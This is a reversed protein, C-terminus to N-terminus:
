GIRWRHGCSICTIFLSMPEDCSRMQQEYYVCKRKHCKKCRFQDTMAEPKQNYTYHDRQVKTELVDKWREPCMQDPTMSAVQHPLLQGSRIRDRLGVNGVTVCSPDLNDIVRNARHFYTKCFHPNSWSRILNHADAWDINANFVGQEADAAELPVLGARRELADRVRRRNPHLDDDKKEEEEEEEEGEGNEVPKVASTEPHSAQAENGVEM